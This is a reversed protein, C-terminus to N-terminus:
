EKHKEESLFKEERCVLHYLIDCGRHAKQYTSGVSSRLGARGTCVSNRNSVLFNKVTYLIGGTENEKDQHLQLFVTNTKNQSSM